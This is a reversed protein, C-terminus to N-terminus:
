TKYSALAMTLLTDDSGDDNKEASMM